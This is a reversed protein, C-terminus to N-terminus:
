GVESVGTKPSPAPKELLTADALRQVLSMTTQLASHFTDLQQRIMQNFEKQAQNVETQLVTLTRLEEYRKRLEDIEKEQITLLQELKRIQENKSAM